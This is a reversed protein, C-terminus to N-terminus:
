RLTDYLSLRIGGVMQYQRPRSVIMMMLACWLLRYTIDYCLRWASVTPFFFFFVKFIINFFFFSFGTLFRFVADLPMFTYCKWAIEVPNETNNNWTTTQNKNLIEISCFYNLTSSCVEASFTQVKNHYFSCRTM